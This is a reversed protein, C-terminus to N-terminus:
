GVKDVVIAAKTLIFKEHDDLKSLVFSFVHNYYVLTENFLRSADFQFFEKMIQENYAGEGKFFQFIREYTELARLNYQKNREREFISMKIEIVQSCTKTIKEYHAKQRELMYNSEIQQDLQSIKGVMTEFDQQSMSKNKIDNVLIVISELIADNRDIEKELEFKRIEQREKQLDEQFMLVQHEKEKIFDVISETLNANESYFILITDAQKVFGEKDNFDIKDEKALSMLLDFYASFVEQNELNKNFLNQIILTAEHHKGQSKYNEFLALM